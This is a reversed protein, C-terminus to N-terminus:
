GPSDLYQLWCESMLSAMDVAKVSESDIWTEALTLRSLLWEISRIVDPHNPIVLRRVVFGNPTEDPCDFAFCAM